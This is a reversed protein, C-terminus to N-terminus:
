LTSKIEVNNFRQFLEFLRRLNEILEELKRLIFYPYKQRRLLLFLIGMPPSVNVFHPASFSPFVKWHSGWRLIWGM